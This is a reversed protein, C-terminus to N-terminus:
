QVMIALASMFEELEADLMGLAAAADEASPQAVIQRVLQLVYLAGFHFAIHAQAHEAGGITPLVTEAFHAWGDAIARSGPADPPTKIPM